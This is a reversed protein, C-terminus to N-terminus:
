QKKNKKLIPKFFLNKVKENKYSLMACSHSYVVNDILLDIM